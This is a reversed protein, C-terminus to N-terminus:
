PQLDIRADLGDLAIDKIGKTASTGHRLFIGDVGVLDAQLACCARIAAHMGSAIQECELHNRAGEAAQLASM